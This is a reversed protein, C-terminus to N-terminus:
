GPSPAPRLITTSSASPSAGPKHDPDFTVSSIAARSRTWNWLSSSEDRRKRWGRVGHIAAFFAVNEDVSLDGYLSFRQSLYGVRRALLRRQGIDPRSQRHPATRHPGGIGVM